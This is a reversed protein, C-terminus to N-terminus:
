GQREWQAPPVPITAGAYEEPSVPQRMVEVTFEPNWLVTFGKCDCVPGSAEVGKGEPVKTVQICGQAQRNHTIWHMGFAHHCRSCVEDVHPWTTMIAM